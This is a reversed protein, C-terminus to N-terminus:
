SGKYDVPNETPTISRDLSKDIKSNAKKSKKKPSKEIKRQDSTKLEVANINDISTEYVQSNSHNKDPEM